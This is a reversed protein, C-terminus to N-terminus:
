RRAAWRVQRVLGRLIRVEREDLGGRTLMSAVSAMVRESQDGHLFGIETLAARLDELAAAQSAASARRGGAEAQESPPPASPAGTQLMGRAAVRWVRRWEYLCVVAAQALNLSAYADGTPISALVHCRSLEENGLGRDEPGFVLAATAPPSPSAALATFAEEVDLVPMHWPDHRSTTGVVVECDAVAEDFSACNKARDLVDAAHVATRRAEDADYEGGVVRLTTAGMNKM